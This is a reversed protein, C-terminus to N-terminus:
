VGKEEWGKSQEVGHLDECLHVQICWGLEIWMGYGAVWLFSNDKPWGELKPLGINAAYGM